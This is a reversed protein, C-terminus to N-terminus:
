AVKRFLLAGLLIAIAALWSGAVRVAVPFWSWAAIQRIAQVTGAVVAVILVSGLIAGLASFMMDGTSGPDPWSIYGSLLGATAGLAFLLFLPLRLGSAAILGVAIAFFILPLDPNVGSVSLAAAGAGLLCTAWFAHFVDEAEPLRQQIILALALLALIQPGSTFPHLMGWYIGQIGPVSSHAWAADPWLLLLLLLALRRM